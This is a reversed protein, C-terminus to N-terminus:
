DEEDDDDERDLIDSEVRLYYGLEDAQEKIANYLASSQPPDFALRVKDCIYAYAMQLHEINSGLFDGWTQTSGTVRFGSMGVGQLWLVQLYSNIYMLLKTDFATDDPEVDCGNKVTLFISDRESVEQVPQTQNEDAM